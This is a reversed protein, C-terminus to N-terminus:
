NELVLLRPIRAFDRTDHTILTLQRGLAQAAIAYGDLRDTKRDSGNPHTDDAIARGISCTDILYRVSRIGFRLQTSRDACFPDLRKGIRLVPRSAAHLDTPQALPVGSQFVTGMDSEEDGSVGVQDRRRNSM